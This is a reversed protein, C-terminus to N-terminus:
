FIEYKDFKAFYLFVITFTLTIVISPFKVDSCQFLLCSTVNFVFSYHLQQYRFGNRNPLICKVPLLNSFDMKLGDNQSKWEEGM